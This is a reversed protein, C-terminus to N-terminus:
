DVILGVDDDGAQRGADLVDIITQYSASSSGILEIHKSYTAPNSAHRRVADSIAADIGNPAVRVGEVIVNSRDDVVIRIPIGHYDVTAHGPQPISKQFGPPVAIAALIMFIVLLVLLVDTFPTINIEAMLSQDADTVHTTM